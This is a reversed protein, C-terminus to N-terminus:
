AAASSSECNRALSAYRSASYSVIVTPLVIIKTDVRAPAPASAAAM